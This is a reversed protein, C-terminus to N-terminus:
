YGVAAAGPARPDAAGSWGAADARIVHAHGFGSSWPQVREVTHGRARLGEDWAEPAQGEIQVKVRGHERWTDFGGGGQAAALTWRGAAVADGATQSGPLLRALLQLLTQPQGDGGMTGIVMDLRNDPHTVLAPSLTHPPRRGPGYEAPHGPELSFGIGRNQLFIRTNPEVLHSGWGSANSQILSVGTGEADATCLYITGGARYQESPGLAAAQDPRIADRRPQLRAPDLLAAGDANEHLVDIRDFAAQRAAEVLLHAWLPDDADTPLSDLRSAIWAGAATLYGQSNPPITWVTRGWAEAGIPEVWDALPRALDDASYEGQGLKLLGEGFEGQYFAARGGDAIAALTRAVGPRGIRDGPRLPGAATYDAADPLDQVLLTALALLPSAPFGDAAYSRAPGLVDALPLRGFRQHLALWGDVCGPVPVSRIDGRFPMETHGEARLRDPDAGSGARGSSNLAAPTDASNGQSVLAFLDGGMGCMYQTTVALVASTAVAADAATGGARLMAVGASSALHDVSCAMGNPARCTEFPALAM